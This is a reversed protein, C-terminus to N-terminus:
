STWSAAVGRRLSRVGPERQTCGFHQYPQVLGHLRAHQDFACQVNFPHGQSGGDFEVVGFGNKFAQFIQAGQEAHGRLVAFSGCPQSAHQAGGQEAHGIGGHLFPQAARGDLAEALGQM